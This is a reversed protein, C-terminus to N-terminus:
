TLLVEQYFDGSVNMKKRNEIKLTSARNRVFIKIMTFADCKVLKNTGKFRHIRNPIFM